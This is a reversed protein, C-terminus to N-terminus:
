RRPLRHLLRWLARRARGDAQLDALAWASSAGLRLAPAADADSIAQWIWEGPLHRLIAAVLPQQPSLNVLWVTLDTAPAEPPKVEVLTITSETTTTLSLAVAPSNARRPVWPTIGLWRLAADPSM